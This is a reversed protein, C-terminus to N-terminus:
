FAKTFSARLVSGELSDKNSFEQYAAIDGGIKYKPSFYSLSAGLANRREQDNAITNYGILGVNWLGYDKGLGWEIILEDELGQGDPMSYRGLASFTLDGKANLKANGGLSLMIADFDKGASAPEDKKYEGTNAWYGTGATIDWKEGHWGLIGGVYLDGIGTQRDIRQGAVKLDTRVMPLVTEFALSAGLVEHSTVWAFRHVLANVSLDTLENDAQYNFYYGKYYVGPPPLVSGRVGEVGPVYHSDSAHAVVSVWASLVAFAFTNLRIDM